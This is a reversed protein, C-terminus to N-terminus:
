RGGGLFLYAAGAGAGNTDEGPAGFLLDHVGDGDADVPALPLTGACDGAAVGSFSADATSSSYSGSVPGYWVWVAGKVSSSTCASPDEDHGGIGVDDLGDGDLDGVAGVSAGLYTKTAAGTFTARANTSNLRVTAGTGVTASGAMLYAAGASTSTVPAGILIDAYGDGDVDGPGSVAQGAADNYANGGFKNAGDFIAATGWGTTDGFVLYAAGSDTGNADAEPAGAVVDDLGDGNVDGLPALAKGLNDSAAQGYLLADAASGLTASSASLDSNGGFLVYVAGANSAGTPDYLHGGIGLDDWGDGNLDGLNAIARGSYDNNASGNLATLGSSASTLSGLGTLPGHVIYTTGRYTGGGSASPSNVVLDTDGDADADIGAVARGSASNTAGTFSATATALSASGSFPGILAYGGGKASSGSGRGMAGIALDDAGDGDLDGLNALGIGAIDSQDEGLLIADADAASYAGSLECEPASTADCDNLVGDGCVEAAGPYRLADADDCDTADAVAGAPQECGTSTSSADGFGDGDGDGYWVTDPNVYEDTDDCDQDDAVYGSPQDCAATTSSPDGYGDDDADAYWTLADAADAEDSEGDCDDDVDNCVETAAPNVAGDGDDCDQDDSVTGAPQTCGAETNLADGYGDGDADAYWIAADAADAEDADGDCDDDVENCVETAAPNVAGDGDDCDQADDTYGTPASCAGTSSAADGYGDEDSDAYWTLVDVADDDYTAGDCDHDTGDCYEPAGPYSTADADDCDGGDRVTGAPQECSETVSGDDGYGDGDGDTYWSAPVTAGDDVLGNCDNDLQDCVEEASPYVGSDGDDCDTDDLVYGDPQACASVEDDANGYDDGDADAFFARTTGVDVEEEPNGEGDLAGGDLIDNCNDDVGNCVELRDPHIDDGAVVTGDDATLGAPDDVCDDGVLGDRDPYDASAFGDGDQDFDDDDQCDADVADYWADAAGPHVEAPTLQIGGSLAIMDEPLTSADDWCDGAPLAGSGTVGWTTEGQFQTPVYGDGDQDFDDEGGCDSDVGDYAADVAGPHVNAGTFAYGSPGAVEDWCDGDAPTYGDGDIDSYKWDANCAAALALSIPLLRMSEGQSNLVGM